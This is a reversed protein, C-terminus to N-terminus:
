YFRVLCATSFKACFVIKMENELAMFIRKHHAFRMVTSTTLSYKLMHSIIQPFHSVKLHNEDSENDVYKLSKFKKKM